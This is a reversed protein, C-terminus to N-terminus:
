ITACGRVARRPSALISRPSWSCVRAPRCCRVDCPWNRRRSLTRRPSCRGSSRWPVIASCNPPTACLFVFFWFTPPALARSCPATTSLLVCGFPRRPLLRLCLAAVGFWCRRWLALLAHTPPPAGAAVAPRVRQELAAAARARTCQRAAGRVRAAPSVPATQRRWACLPAGACRGAARAPHRWATARVRAASRAHSAEKRLRLRWMTRRRSMEVDEEKKQVRM